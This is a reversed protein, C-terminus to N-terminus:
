SPAPAKPRRGAAPPPSASEPEAASRPHNRTEIRKARLAPDRRYGDTSGELHEDLARELAEREGDRGAASLSTAWVPLAYFLVLLPLVLLVSGDMFWLALAGGLLALWCAFVGVGHRDARGRSAEREAEAELWESPSLERRAREVVDDLEPAELQPDHTM